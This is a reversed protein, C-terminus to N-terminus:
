MEQLRVSGGSSNVTFLSYIRIFRTKILIHMVIELKVSLYLRVSFKVRDDTINVLPVRWM